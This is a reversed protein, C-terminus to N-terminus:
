LGHRRHSSSRESGWDFTEHVLDFCIDGLLHGFGGVFSAQMCAQMHACLHCMMYSWSIGCKEKGLTCGDALL